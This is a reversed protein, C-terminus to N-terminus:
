SPRRFILIPEWRYLVSSSSRQQPQAPLLYRLAPLVRFARPFLGRCDTAIPWEPTDKVNVLLYGGPRLVRCGEEIVTALFKDRWERYTKYRVWSQENAPDYWETRYYPPSTFVLDFSSGDLRSLVDEAPAQIISARGPAIPRLREIMRRLGGVQQPSPDIGVYSRDLSLAALLRGGFGASFDLVRGEKPSYREYLARAVAPRFNSVRSRHSFRILSRICQANWCRRNPYFRYAKGVVKRLTEDQAFSEVPSKGHCRIEWMQPHFANALRLGVVNVQTAGNVIAREARIRCLASWETLLAHEDLEPYPFGRGRWFAFAREEWQERTRAALHGIDRGFKDLVGHRDAVLM